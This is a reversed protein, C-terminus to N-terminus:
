RNMEKAKEKLLAIYTGVLSMQTEINVLDHALSAKKRLSQLREMEAKFVPLQNPTTYFSSCCWCPLGGEHCNEDRRCFGVISPSNTPLFEDAVAMKMEMENIGIQNREDIRKLIQPDGITIHYKGEVIRSISQDYYHEITTDQSIHGTMVARDMETFGNKTGFDYARTMFVKRLRAPNYYPIGAEKCYDKLVAQLNQPTLRRVIGKAMWQFVWGESSKDKNKDVCKKSVKMCGILIDHTLKSIAMREQRGNSKKTTVEIFFQDKKDGQHIDSEKLSIISSLRLKTTLLLLFAGYMIVGRGSNANEHMVKSLKKLDDEPIGEPEETKKYTIKLGKYFGQEISYSDLGELYKFFDRLYFQKKDSYSGDRKRCMERLITGDNYTFQKSTIGNEKRASFFSSIIPVIEGVSKSSPISKTSVTYRIMIDRMEVDLSSYSVTYFDRERSKSDYKNWGKTFWVVKTVKEPDYEVDPRHPLPIFGDSIISQMMSQCLFRLNMVDDNDIREELSKDKAVLDKFAKRELTGNHKEENCVKVMVEWIKKGTIDSVKNIGYGKLTEPIITM